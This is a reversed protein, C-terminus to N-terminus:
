AGVAAAYRTHVDRVRKIAGDGRRNGDDPRDRDCELENSRRRLRLRRENLKAGAPVDQGDDRADREVTLIAGAVGHAHGTLNLDVECVKPILVAMRKAGTRRATRMAAVAVM